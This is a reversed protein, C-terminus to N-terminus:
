AAQGHRRVAVGLALLGVGFMAYTSPEPTVPVCSLCAVRFVGEAQTNGWNATRVLIAVPDSAATSLGLDALIVNATNANMRLSGALSGSAKAVVVGANVSDILINGGTGGVVGPVDAAFIAQKGYSVLAGNNLRSYLDAYITSTSLSVDFNAMFISRSTITEDDNFVTRRINVFSNAAQLSNVTDGTITAKNFALSVNGTAKTYTATNTAGSISLGAITPVTGATVVNSGSASLASLADASFTLSGTGSTLEWLGAYPTASATSGAVLAAVSAICKFAFKM